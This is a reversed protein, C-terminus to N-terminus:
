QYKLVANVFDEFDQLHSSLISTVIQLNIKQYEHIAINRFGVMGQMKRSLEPSIIHGAELLTFVDRSAQPVGLKKTRVLRAALDIAAECARQLNLIISDQKTFNSKIEEEHGDYEERVRRLCNEIITIKNLLVDDM